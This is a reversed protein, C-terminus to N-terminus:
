VDSMVWGGHRPDSEGGTDDPLHHLLEGEGLVREDELSSEMGRAVVERYAASAALLEEHTGTAAVQGDIVLAVVEAHRLWLPSVTTVVTTRGRRHEAVRAAIRAETHADVASTPEVLLMVPPEALLARALAVRQRQGGSLGRGKEEVEGQWGDPLADYVDEACATRLAAEAQERTARGQPDVNRQLTGAFLMASTESVVIHSRVDGIRFASLDTGALTVGWVGHAIDADRAATRARAAMRRARERRAARGTLEDSSVDAPPAEARPLYRGLRDALAATDDPLASVLATLRGQRVVLGSAEDVLDGDVIEAPDDPDVWPSRLSLLAVAKRASVLGTAWRQVCEFFTQIPWLLFVAYGFFSVLQGITLRGDVMEHVGRWTLVVLLLGAFLVSLAQVAAQWTGTAVGAARTLQSQAAYNTGFTEEGGIGRLIRLGAVIDTVRSTLESSRKREVEQARHLPRLLFVSSAVLLPSALLVLLGLTPSTSIMLWVLLLFAGFAAITRETVELVAGFVDSDGSSVSLVEGTPTRRPLVHGLDTVKAVVLEMTGYLTVLWTRVVLTHWVIGMATGIGIAVFLAVCWMVTATADGALIGRDIAQGVAYPALAPPLFWVLGALAGLTVLGPQVRMLWLLFRAPSRLDPPPLDRRARLRPPFDIMM